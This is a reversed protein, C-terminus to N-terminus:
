VRPSPPCSLLDSLRNAYFDGMKLVRVFAVLQEVAAACTSLSFTEEDFEILFRCRKFLPEFEDALVTPDKHFRFLALKLPHVDATPDHQDLLHHNPCLPILNLPENNAPNGDIHHIQPNPKACLACLHNFERLVEDCVARSITKRPM